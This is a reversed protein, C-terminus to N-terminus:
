RVPTYFARDMQELVAYMVQFMLVDGVSVPVDLIIKGWFRVTKKISLKPKHSTVLETIYTCEKIDLNLVQKM